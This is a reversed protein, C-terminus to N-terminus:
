RPWSTLCNRFIEGTQRHVMVALVFIKLELLGTRRALEKMAAEPSLGLNQQDYCYGFEEAIPSSFEEAVAQLAQSITQGARMTRSMVDFADPLQSLLKEARRARLISLYVLPTVGAVFGVLVALAISKSLVGALAGFLAAAGLCLGVVQGPQMSAGSEHILRLLRSVVSQRERLDILGDAAMEYLEQYAMSGRAHERVRLRHEEELRKRVQRRRAETVDVLLWNVGFILLFGALFALSLVLYAM